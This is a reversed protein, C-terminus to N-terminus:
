QAAEKAIDRLEDTLAKMVRYGSGHDWTEVQDALREIRQSLLTYTVPGPDNFNIAKPIAPYPVGTVLPGTWGDVTVVYPL